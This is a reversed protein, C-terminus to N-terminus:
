SRSLYRFPGPQVVRMERFTGLFSLSVVLRFLGSLFFVVPLNSVLQLTLAGLTFGPPTISALWSGAMAGLFWGLANVTNCVAVGKARDEPRVADFVYNQLGLSLGAWIIGGFFNIAVLAYLNTSLLYLMPLVPVLFGTLVIVSKTGHRDCYNGWFPLTLVQGSVGAALWMGYQVYTFHLDRLLYIVFYPGAILVSAHMLGTFWLFRRFNGSRERGLFTGLEFGERCTAPSAPEDLLSLYRASIARALAAVFFIIAFGIWTAHRTEAYHLVLGALCLTLFGALAMLKARRAFYAGRLNPDVLDTILSNWAPIGFHGMGFYVVACAILLWAGQEPFLLPLAVLPIWLAAQGTAGALIVPKRRRVYPLAKVSLIQAWTGVVQPLASLLGIQWASAHLLLAFASLYNEGGGQMVAQFAGERIGYRRSREARDIGHDPPCAPPHNPSHNM